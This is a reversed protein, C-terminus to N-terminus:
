TMKETKRVTSKKGIITSKSVGLIIASIICIMAIIHYWYIAEQLFLYALIMASIPMFSTFLAATSASSKSLGRYWFLYFVVNTSVLILLLLWNLLGISLYDFEPLHLLMLPLFLIVNFLNILATLVMPKVHNGYWKAIITFLAEPIVALFILLNGILSLHGSVSSEGKGLNLVMLAIVSIVIAFIKNFSLNEKLLLWSFIIIMMPVLSSILGAATVTTYQLGFILLINFLFGACLAQGFIVKWDKLSLKQGYRNHYIKEGSVVFIASFFLTPLVFRLGILIFIPFFDLLHKSLVLMIGISLQAIFLELYGNDALKKM